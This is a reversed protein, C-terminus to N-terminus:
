QSLVAFGALSASFLVWALVGAIGAAISVVLMMCKARFYSSPSPMDLLNRGDETFRVIQYRSIIRTQRKSIERRNELEAVFTDSVLDLVNKGSKSTNVSRILRARASADFKSEVQQMAVRDDYGSSLQNILAVGLDDPSQAEHVLRKLEITIWAIDDDENSM